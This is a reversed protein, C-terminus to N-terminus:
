YTHTCTTSGFATPYHQASLVSSCFMWVPRRRCTNLLLLCNFRTYIQAALTTWTLKTLRIGSSSTSYVAHAQTWVYDVPITQMKSTHIMCSTHEWTSSCSQAVWVQYLLMQVDKVANNAWWITPTQIQRAFSALKQKLKNNVIHKNM